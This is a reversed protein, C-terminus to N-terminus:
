ACGRSTVKNVNVWSFASQKKINGMNMNRRINEMDEWRGNAACVNSLLIHVSDDSTNLELLHKAAKKGLEMNNHTICASLLSRWILDNPPIPMEKIFKVADMLRGSRGLLDVVCVFHQIGPLVQFESAMRAFYELGEDVFGGHDLASLLFIFTIPDPRQGVQLMLEFTEIAEKCYGHRSFASILINWSLLSRKEPVPLMRLVEEIKGCKGYMDMSANTVHFDSEFGMKIILNHLQRGEDLLSLNASAALSASFSFCDLELGTRHMNVFLKLAEEGCGNHTNAAIMANWSVVNRMDLKQFILESSRFDGCRAYMTLLSTQVYQDQEFGTLIIHAHVPMGLVMLDDVVSSCGLINIVTIYDISAGCERMMKFVRTVQNPEKNESYGGILANWTVGDRLPITRFIHEAREMMQFNGYMTVLANGVLFDDNLSARISIAHVVKGYNPAELCSCAALVNSIAVENMLRSCGVLESFVRLADQFEGNQVYSAVMSNWSISDKEPMERFLLEADKCSGLESYLTILTTCLCVFSDLGVKVVLGHLGRGLNLNYGNSCACILTSLTTPNPKVNAYRMRQFYRLSEECFGNDCYVSIISNWSITDREEMWEFIFRADDVNGFSGFMVILSNAVSVNSEFGCHVVHAFVQRGLLEYGLSGCSSIVTSFSNQNCNVGGRRMRQYIEIVGKPDNNASYCVMLCTWSVTNREEMEGFVRCADEMFGYMGYLHLLSTSVYVNCLLGVKVAFGHVQVGQAFMWGSKDCATILSSIFFGDPKIGKGWIERCLEVADVYLGHKVYGSIITNWSVEDRHPM